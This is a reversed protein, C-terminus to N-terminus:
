FDIAYLKGVQVTMTTTLENIFLPAGLEVNGKFYYISVGWLFKRVAFLGSKSWFFPLRYINKSKIKGLTISRYCVFAGIQCTSLYVLWSNQLITAVWVDNVRVLHFCNCILAMTCVYNCLEHFLVECIIYFRSKKKAFKLTM